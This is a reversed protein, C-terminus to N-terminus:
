LNLFALRYFHFPFFLPPNCGIKFIQCFWNESPPAKAKAETVNPANLRVSTLQVTQHGVAVEAGVTDGPGAIAEIVRREHRGSRDKEIEAM